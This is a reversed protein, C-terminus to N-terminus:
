RLGDKPRWQFFHRVRAWLTWRPRGGIVDALHLLLEPTERLQELTKPCRALAILTIVAAIRQDDASNSRALESASTEM